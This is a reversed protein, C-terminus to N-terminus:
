AEAVLHSRGGVFHILDGMVDLVVVVVVAEQRRVLLMMLIMM